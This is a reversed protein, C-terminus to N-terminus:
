GVYVDLSANDNYTNVLKITDGPRVLDSPGKFDSYYYVRFYLFSNQPQYNKAGGANNWVNVGAGGSGHPSAKFYYNVGGNVSPNFNRDGGAGYWSNLGHQPSNYFLCAYGGDRSCGSTAASASGTGASFVGICAVLAVIVGLLRQGTRALSVLKRSM